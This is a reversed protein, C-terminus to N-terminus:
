AYAYLRASGLFGAQSRQADDSPSAERAGGAGGSLGLAKLIISM